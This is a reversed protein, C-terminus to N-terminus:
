RAYGTTGDAKTYPTPAVSVTGPAKKRLKIARHQESLKKMIPRENKIFDGPTWDPKKPGSIPKSEPVRGKYKDPGAYKGKFTKKGQQAVGKYKDPGIYKGKYKKKPVAGSGQSQADQQQQMTKYKDATKNKLAMRQAAMTLASAKAIKAKELDVPM